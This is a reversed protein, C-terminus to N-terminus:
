SSCRPLFVTSIQTLSQSTMRRSGSVSQPLSLPLLSLALSFIFVPMAKIEWALISGVNEWNLILRPRHRLNKEVIVELPVPYNIYISDWFDSYKTLGKGWGWSKRCIWSFNDHLNSPMYVWLLSNEKQPRLPKVCISAKFVSVIVNIQSNEWSDGCSGYYM